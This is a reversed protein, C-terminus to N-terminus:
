RDGVPLRINETLVVNQVGVQVAIYHLVPVERIYHATAFSRHTESWLQASANPLLPM